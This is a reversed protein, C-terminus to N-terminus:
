ACTAILLIVFAIGGFIGFLGLFKEKKEKDTLGSSVTMFYLVGAIVGGIIAAIAVLILLGLIFGLVTGFQEPNNTIWKLAFFISPGAKSMKYDRIRTPRLKKNCRARIRKYHYRLFHLWGNTDRDEQTLTEVERCHSYLPISFQEVHLHLLGM